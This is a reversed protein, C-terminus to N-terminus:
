MASPDTAVSALWEVLMQQHQEIRKSLLEGLERELKVSAEFVAVLPPAALLASDHKAMPLDRYHEMRQALRALEGAIRRHRDVLEAYAAVTWPEFAQESV